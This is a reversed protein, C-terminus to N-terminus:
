VLPEGRRQPKEWRVTRGYGTIMDHAYAVAELGREQAHPGGAQFAMVFAQGSTQQVAHAMEFSRKNIRDLIELCVGAREDPDTRAWSRGAAASAAILEDAGARPYGVGLPLGYPSRETIIRDDAGVQDLPFDKGLYAQFAAEGAAAAGEGYVKPSPSEPYPSWYHRGRIAEVASELTARHREYLESPAM